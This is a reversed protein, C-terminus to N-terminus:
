RDARRGRGRDSASKRRAADRLVRVLEKADGAPVGAVFCRALQQGLLTHAECDGDRVILHFVGDPTKLCEIEVGDDLVFRRAFVSDDTDM